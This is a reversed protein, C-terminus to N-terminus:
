LDPTTLGDSIGIKVEVRIIVNTPRGAITPHTFQMTRFKEIVPQLEEDSLDTSAVGIWRVLGDGGILLSIKAQGSVLDSFGDPIEIENGNEVRVPEDLEDSGHAVM